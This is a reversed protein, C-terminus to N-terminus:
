PTAGSSSIRRSISMSLKRALKGSGGSGPNKSASRLLAGPAGAAEFLDNLLAALDAPTHREYKSRNDAYASCLMAVSNLIMHLYWRTSSPLCGRLTARAERQRGALWCARCGSAHAVWRHLGRRQVQECVGRLAADAPRVARGESCLAACRRACGVGASAAPLPWCPLWHRRDFALGQESGREYWGSTVVTGTLWCGALKRELSVQQGQVEAIAKNVASWKDKIAQRAAKDGALGAPLAQRADQRLLSLLPGWAHEVYQQQWEEVKGQLLTTHRWTVTVKSGTLGCESAEVAKSAPCLSAGRVVCCVSLM